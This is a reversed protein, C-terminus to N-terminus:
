SRKNTIKLRTLDCFNRFLIPTHKLRRIIKKYITKQPMEKVFGRLYYNVSINNEKFLPMVEENWRGQMIGTFVYPIIESRNIKYKDRSVTYFKHDLIQSRKTGFKEFQWPTEYTRLYQLLISKKWLAAQCSIRYPAKKDILWFDKYESDSFPGTTNQDTLHLCDIDNEQMITAFRTILEHQVKSKIFYDEQMYLIIESDIIKLANILCESWTIIKTLSSKNNQISVINLGPFTFSKTETNLFITGAYEPWFKKFLTFFPLWCDEFNDTTNVFVLFKSHNTM